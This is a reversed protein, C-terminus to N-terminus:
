FPKKSPKEGKNERGKKRPENTQKHETKLAIKEKLYKKGCGIKYEGKVSTSTAKVVKPLSYIMEFSNKLGNMETQRNVIAM